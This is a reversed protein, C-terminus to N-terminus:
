KEQPLATCCRGAEHCWQCHEAEWENESVQRPISGKGDCANNPCKAVSLLSELAEIRAQLPDHVAAWYNAFWSCLWGTDKAPDFGKEEANKCFQEAWHMADTSTADLESM